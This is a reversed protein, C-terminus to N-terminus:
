TTRVGLSYRLVQLFESHRISVRTLNQVREDLREMERDGSSDVFAQHSTRWEEAKKGRDGDKFSVPSNNMMPRARELIRDCEAAEIFSKVEFVRPRLSLTRLSIGGLGSRGM